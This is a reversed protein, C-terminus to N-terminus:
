DRFEVEGMSSSVSFRLTPPPVESDPQINFPADLGEIVVDRPLRVVGGGMSCRIVIESDQVWQGRLDLDMGGMSYDVTLRRPSANGLSSVEFGGMSGRISLREMPVRMPESVRLEVGGKAFDLDASTLWLGGFDVLSGGEGVRLDLSLPVDVPLFIRVEPRTGGFLEKLAAVLSSGSRRFSVRYTWTSDADTEFSEDLEHTKIDYTAEVRMPEGPEAPEIDFESHRLDLIVHGHTPPVERGAPGVPTGPEPTPAEPTPTVPVERTLVRDEVQESRAKILATGTLGGAILVLVGILGLCGFCGYALWRKVGGDSDAM